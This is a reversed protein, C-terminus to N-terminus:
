LTRGQLWHNVRGWGERVRERNRECGEAGTTEMTERDTWMVVPDSACERNMWTVM